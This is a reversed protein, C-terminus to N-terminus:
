RERYQQYISGHQAIWESMERVMVEYSPVPFVNERQTNVLSKDSALGTSKHIEIKQKRCYQNFLMLLHYKDIVENNVLHYLGARNVKTDELITKALQLTTVGSWIVKAFGNVSGNQKMFWHFLGIGNEKLEPGVISTRITLNKEDCIEGLVKTRGYYSVADPLDAETYHGKTGEFVCDTSIHILKTKRGSLLQKLLHPLVSNLYIGDAPNEDVFQNLVGICNVVYDFEDSEVARIIDQRNLANGTITNCIPSQQKAFGTVAQGQETLYQATLHGVMGNSGLILFKTSM